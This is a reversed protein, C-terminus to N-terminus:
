YNKLAQTLSDYGNEELFTSLHMDGRVGFDKHYKKEIKDMHTNGHKRDIEGDKDRARGDLGIPKKM